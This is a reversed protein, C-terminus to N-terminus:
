FLLSSTENVTQIKAGGSWGVDEDLQAEISSPLNALETAADEYERM